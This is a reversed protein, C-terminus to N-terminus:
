KADLSGSAVLANRQSCNNQASCYNCAKVRGKVVKVAGKGKEARYKHAEAITTFNKSSRSGKVHMKTEDAYYKFSDEERWLDEDSCYPLDVEPTDAHLQLLDLKNKVYAETKEYSLLDYHKSVTRMQPYAPKSMAEIKSWDTFFYNIQITSQTIQDPRIWRYLSGQLIFKPANKQNMYMFTMTSKHDNLQGNLILDYKGSITVGEYEKYIRNEVMVDFTDMSYEPPNIRVRDIHDADYGLKTLSKKVREPDSWVREISDHIATGMCSQIYNELDDDERIGGGSRKALIIQRVSRMLTTVSIIGPNYDYDDNALWVAIALSIGKKNSLVTM